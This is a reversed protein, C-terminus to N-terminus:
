ETKKNRFNLYAIIGKYYANAVEEVRKSILYNEFLVNKKNLATHEYMNDQYLPELYCVPSIIKRTLALNRCFVGPIPTPICYDNLYSISDSPTAISLLTDKRLEDMIFKSLHISAEIQNSFLLRLFHFEDEPKLSEEAMFAGPVFAMTKNETTPTKWPDNNIDVNYHLILTLDPEFDNIKQARTEFDIRNFLKNFLVKQTYASNITKFKKYKNYEELNIEEILYLSDLHQHFYNNLWYNFDYGMASEGIKDRTLLVTAGANELLKKLVIATHFTLESEVLTTNSTFSPNDKKLFEIYKGEIKASLLDRSSHGPDLAIRLGPPKVHSVKNKASYGLTSSILHSKEAASAAEIKQLPFQYYTSDKESYWQFTHHDLVIKSLTSSDHSLYTLRDILTDIVAPLTVDPAEAIEIVAPHPPAVSSPSYESKCSYTTMLGFFLFSFGCARLVM